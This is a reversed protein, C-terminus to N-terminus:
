ICGFFSLYSNSSPNYTDPSGQRNAYVFYNTSGYVISRAWYNRPSGNLYKIRNATTKYYEMQSLADAECPNAQLRYGFIEKEAFMSIYDQVTQNTSGNYTEATIVDFQKFLAKFDSDFANYYLNNADVRMLCSGWSGANSMTANVRGEQNLCDKQGVVYHIGQQDMYGENMLVMVVDQAAMATTFAGNPNAAIASLHEIREDGISWYDYINIKGADHADLMAKLEAPTGDAWTVIKVPASAEKYLYPFYVSM